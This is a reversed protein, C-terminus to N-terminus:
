QTVVPKKHRHQLHSMAYFLLGVLSVFAVVGITGILIGISVKMDNVGWFQAVLCAISLLSVLAMAGCFGGLGANVAPKEMNDIHSLNNM